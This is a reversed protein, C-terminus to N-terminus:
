FIKLIFKGFIQDKRIFGFSRSDDTSLRNDNLAFYYDSKFTYNYVIDNGSHVINGKIIHNQGTEYEIISKYLEFNARNLKITMGMAPIVLMGFNDKNWYFLKNFPETKSSFLGKQTVSGKISKALNLKSIKLINEKDTNFHYVGFFALKQNYPINNEILVQKLKNSDSNIIYHSLTKGKRLTKQNLKRKNIFINSNRILITDGPIAVCRILRGTNTYSSLTTDILIINNRKIRTRKQILILDGKKLGNNMLDDPVVIFDFLFYRFFLVLLTAIILPAVWLKIINM